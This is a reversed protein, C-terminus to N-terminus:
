SYIQFRRQYVDKGGQIFGKGTVMRPPKKVRVVGTTFKLRPIFFSGTAINSGATRM